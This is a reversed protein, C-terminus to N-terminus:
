TISGKIKHWMRSAVACQATCKKLLQHPPLSRASDPAADQAEAAAAPKRATGRSTQCLSSLPLMRGCVRLKGGDTDPCEYLGITKATHLLYAELRAFHRGHNKSKVYECHMSHTLEHLLVRMLTNMNEPPGTRNGKEFVCIRLHRGKDENVALIDNDDNDYESVRLDAAPFHQHKYHKMLLRMVACTIDVSESCTGDVCPVGANSVMVRSRLTGDPNMHGDHIHKLLERARRQLEMLHEAATPTVTDTRPSGDNGELLGTTTWRYM